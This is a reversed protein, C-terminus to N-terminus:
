TTNGQGFFSSAGEPLSIHSAPAHHDAGASHAAAQADLQV